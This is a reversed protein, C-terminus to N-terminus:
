VQAVRILRFEAEQQRIHEIHIVLCITVSEPCKLFLVVPTPRDGIEGQRRAYVIARPM